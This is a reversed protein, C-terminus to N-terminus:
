GEGERIVEEFFNSQGAVQGATDLRLANGQPAQNHPSPNLTHASFFQPNQLTSLLSRAPTTKLDTFLM